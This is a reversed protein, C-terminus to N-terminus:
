HNKRGKKISEELSLQYIEGINVPVLVNYANEWYEMFKGVYMTKEGDRPDVYTIQDTKLDYKTVVVAHAVRHNPNGKLYTIVPKKQQLEKLLEDWKYGTDPKFSIIPSGTKLVENLNKFAGYSTMLYLSTELVKELEPVTFPPINFNQKNRLHELVMWACRPVCSYNDEQQSYPLM